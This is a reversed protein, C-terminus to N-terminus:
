YGDRLRVRLGSDRRESRVWTVVYDHTVIGRHEGIVRKLENSCLTKEDRLESMRANADAIGAALENLHGSETPTMEDDAKRYMEYIAKGESQLPTVVTPMLDREVFTTWFNDVAEVVAEIDDDDRAVRYEHYHLGFDGVLAVVDAFEYGTISLYHTVQTLYHMPVGEDWESEKSGTKIELVGWGAGPDIVVGDLSAQAWPRTVSTLVANSRMVKRDPHRRAYMERVFSEMENGMAIRESGSLDRPPMRGTKDMWVEVPSRWPSIGMVAAVDSGGIGKNRKELWRKELDDDGGFRTATFFRGENALM